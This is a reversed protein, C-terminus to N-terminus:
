KMEFDLQIGEYAGSGFSGLTNDQASRILVAATLHHKGPQIGGKKYVYIKATEAFDWRDFVMTPMDKPDKMGTSTELKMCDNMHFEEGDLIVVIDELCSLRLSRYQPEQMMVIFGATNGNEEFNVIPDGNYLDTRYKIKM